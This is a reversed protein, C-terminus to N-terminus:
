GRSKMVDSTLVECKGFKDMQKDGYLIINWISLVFYFIIFYFIKILNM